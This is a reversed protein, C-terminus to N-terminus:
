VRSHTRAPAYVPTGGPKKTQVPVDSVQPANKLRVVTQYAHTEVEEFGTGEVKLVFPITNTFLGIYGDESVVAQVTKYGSEELNKQLTRDTQSPNVASRGSFLHSHVIGLLLLGHSLDFHALEALLDSMDAQVGYRSPTDLKVPILLDWDYAEQGRPMGSVLFQREYTPAGQFLATHCQELFYSTTYCTLIPAAEQPSKSDPPPRHEPTRISLSFSLGPREAEQLTLIFEGERLEKAQPLAFLRELTKDQDFGIIAMTIEKTSIVRGARARRKSYPRRHHLFQQERRLPSSVRREDQM